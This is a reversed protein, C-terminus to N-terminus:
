KIEVLDAGMGVMGVADRREGAVSCEGGCRARRLREIMFRLELSARGRGETGLAVVAWLRVAAGARTPAVARARVVRM